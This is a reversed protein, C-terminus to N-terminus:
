IKYVIYVPNPLDTFKKYQLWPAFDSVLPYMKYTIEIPMANTEM